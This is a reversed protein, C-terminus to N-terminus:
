IGEGAPMNNLAEASNVSITEVGRDIRRILSALVTGAGIEGMDARYTGAHVVQSLYYRLGTFSAFHLHLSRYEEDVLNVAEIFGLM